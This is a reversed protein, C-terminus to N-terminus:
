QTAVVCPTYFRFGGGGKWEASATIGSLDTGDIVAKLRPMVHTHCHEGMEIMIWRRGLKHAVAGTTGSGAFADLVWDGKQTSMKIIRSLLKEPKKGNPFLVGGEKGVGGTTKIDTWLDGPNRYLHHYAFLVQVRPQRADRDFRTQYLYLLGTPSRLAAIEQDIPPQEKALRLVSSSGVAQIIRWANDFKWQEQESPPIGHEKFYAAISQIKCKRLLQNCDDIDEVSVNEQQMMRDLREFDGPTFNLLVNKYENNWQAIPVLEPTLTPQEKKKYILIYEKLKPLRKDAHAMKVGSAESMKVVITNVRNSRHFIEDMLLTLYAMENDDIQVFILGDDALLERLLVLRERMFHLWESSGRGDEYYEFASGTNYPPDIYICKIKGAFEGQLAQLATLNDGFILRNDLLDDKGMRNEARYGNDPDEVLEIERTTMAYLQLAASEEM